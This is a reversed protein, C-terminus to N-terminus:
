ASQARRAAVLGVVAILVLLALMARRSTELGAAQPPVLITVARRDRTLLRTRSSPVITGSADVVASIGSTTVRIWPVRQEIARFVGLALHRESGVSGGFWRDNTPNLIVNGGRQAFGAVHGEFLVEYCIAPIARVSPALPLPDVEDGPVYRLAKPFLDRLGEFPVWEFFPVLRHKSYRARETGDSALVHMTNTYGPDPNEPTAYTLYVYSSVVVLPRGIRRALAITHERHFTNDTITYRASVEPWVVVDIEPHEAVLADTEAVMREPDGRRDLNPQVFGVTLSSWGESRLREPDFRDLRVAGYVVIAFPVLAVIVIATARKTSSPLAVEVIGFGVLAIAFHIAPLGGVDVAQVVLPSFALGDIPGGPILWRDLALCSAFLASVVVPNRHEERLSGLVAGFIAHPAALVLCTAVFLLAGVVVNAHTFELLAPVVWGIAATWWAFGFLGFV